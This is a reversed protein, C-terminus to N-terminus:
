SPTDGGLAYAAADELSMKQGQDWADSFQDDSLEARIESLCREYDIEEATSLPTGLAGRLQESFGLLICSPQFRGKACAVMALGELCQAVELRASIESAILLGEEFRSTALETDQERYAVLGLGYLGRVVAIQDGVERLLPLGEEILEAAREYEGQYCAVIGQYVQLSAMGVEYGIETFTAFSRACLEAAEEFESQQMASFGLQYLTWGAERLYGVDYCAQLAEQGLEVDRPHDRQMTAMGALNTLARARIEPSGGDELQLTQELWRRGESFEARVYWYWSLAVALRIGEEAEGRDIAWQLAIRLNDGEAELREM